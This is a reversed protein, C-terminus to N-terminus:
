QKKPQIYWLVTEGKKVESEDECAFTIQGDVGAELSWTRNKDIFAQGVYQDKQVISGDEVFIPKKPNPKRYFRGDWSAIFPTGVDKRERGLAGEIIVSVPRSPDERSLTITDSTPKRVLTIDGSTTESAAIHLMASTLFPYKELLGALDQAVERLPPALTEIESLDQAPEGRQPKFQRPDIPSKEAM